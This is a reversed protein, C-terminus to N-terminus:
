RNEWAEIALRLRTDPNPEDASELNWDDRNLAAWHLAAGLQELREIRDTLGTLVAPHVPIMRTM